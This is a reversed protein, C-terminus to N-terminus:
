GTYWTGYDININRWKTFKTDSTTYEDQMTYVSTGSAIFLSMGYAKNNYTKGIAKYVVLDNFKTIVTSAGASSYNSSVKNLFSYADACGTTWEGPDSQYPQDVGFKQIVTSAGTSTNISGICSSIMSNYKSSSNISMNSIMSEFASVYESMKSLDYVALTADNYGDKYYTYGEAYYGAYIEACKDKYTDCISKGLDVTSIESDEALTALWGDYDWGGAPESEQSSIMYNFYDANISAIDQMAMLCCDYGIWELKQGGLAEDFASKMESTLLMDWSSNYEDSCCGQMGNGHDWMIVGTKDAPYNSLGWTLFKKFTSSSAMNISSSSCSGVDADKVLQHNEVHWRQEKSADMGYSNYWYHTGGTELIVNVNDPIDAALIEELNASAFGGDEQVYKQTQSNYGSELDSGCMYIMITHTTEKEVVHVTCEDYKSSDKQLTARVVASDSTTANSAVTVEGDESVTIKSSGSRKSWTLATDKNAGAPTYTVPISKTGGAAINMESPLSVDTASIRSSIIKVSIIYISSTTCGVTIKVAGSASGTFEIDRHTTGGTKTVSGTTTFTTGGVEIAISGAGSSSNTRYTVIVSTVGAFSEPSTANAGDVGTSIQVGDNFQLGDKGSTWNGETAAWSKSTFTYTKETSDIVTVTCTATLGGSQTTATITTTGEAVATVKGSSNVTAISTLSSSWTVNTNDANSPLVTATLTEYAEVQLTLATKNLTISTPVIPTVTVDCYATFGGDQTTVTIRATGTAVASVTGNSVTAVSSNNTSWTVNKNSANSPAVTATLTESGGRIISTSTKNLTVGTVAITTVTVTCTAKKNSDAASTATIIASGAAVATVTGNSVTAVSTNSSSWIIGKNTANEPLVTATLTETEGKTIQTSPKNLSVSTVAIDTVVVSCQATCGGDETTVTITATGAAVATVSGEFVTAVNENNSSWVVNKNTANSPSITATLIANGNTNLNLQNTNLSVSTVHYVATVTVTCSEEFGGDTTTVSIVATGPAVATVVGNNSVTAVDPNNTSWIVSKDTANEPFVTAVLTETSEAPISATDKNLSVGTVEIPGLQIEVTFKISWITAYGSTAELKWVASNIEYDYASGTGSTSSSTGTVTSGNATVTLYSYSSGYFDIWISKVVVDGTPGLYANNIRFEDYSSMNYSGATFVVDFTLGTEGIAYSRNVDSSGASTPLGSNSKNITIEYTATTPDDGNPDVPDVPVSGSSRKYLAVEGQATYSSSKYYRFLPSTSSSNYRLHSTNSEIDAVGDTVSISNALPSDSVQTSNSNSVGGIYKGGNTLISSNSGNIDIVVAYADVTETATIKKDVISVSQPSKIESEATGAGNLAKGADENVILYTGDTLESDDNVKVYNVVRAACAYSAVISSITTEGSSVLKFYDYNADVAFEVGSTLAHASGDFTTSNSSYLNLTGSFTVSVTELGTLRTSNYLYGNNAVVAYNNTSKKVNSYKIDIQTGRNTRAATNTQESSSYSSSFSSGGNSSSLTLIYNNDASVKPSFSGLGKGSFFLVGLTLGTFATCLALLTFKRKKLKNM